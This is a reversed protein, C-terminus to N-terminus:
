AEVCVCSRAVLVRVRLPNSHSVCVRVQVLIYLIYFFCLSRASSSLRHCTRKGRALASSIDISLVVVAWM